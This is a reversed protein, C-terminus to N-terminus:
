ALDVEVTALTIGSHPLTVTGSAFAGARLQVIEVYGPQNDTVAWPPLNLAALRQNQAANNQAIDTKTDAWEANVATMAQQAASQAGATIVPAINAVATNAANTAAVTAARATDAATAATAASSAADEALQAAALADAKLATLDAGSVWALNVVPKTIDVEGAATEVPLINLVSGRQGAGAGSKFLLRVEGTPAPDNQQWRAAVMDFPQGDVEWRNDTWDYTLTVTGIGLREGQQYPRTYTLQATLPTNAPVDPKGRLTSM